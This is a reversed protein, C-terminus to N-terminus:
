SNTRLGLLSGILGLLFVGALGQWVSLTVAGTTVVALLWVGFWSVLMLIGFVIAVAVVGLGICALVAGFKEAGSMSSLSKSM